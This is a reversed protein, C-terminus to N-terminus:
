QLGAKRAQKAAVKKMKAAYWYNNTMKSPSIAWVKQIVERESTGLDHTVRKSQLAILVDLVRYFRTKHIGAREARARYELEIQERTRRAYYGKIAQAAKVSIAKGDGISLLGQGNLSGASLGSDMLDWKSTCKAKWDNVIETGFGHRYALLVLRMVGAKCVALRSDAKSKHLLTESDDCEALIELCLTKTEQADRYARALATFAQELSYEDLQLM